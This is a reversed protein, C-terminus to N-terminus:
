FANKNESLFVRTKQAPISLLIIDAFKSVSKLNETTILRESLKIGPLYKNNVHKSGIEKRQNKKPVWLTVDKNEKALTNALATGFAGAGIVLIKM